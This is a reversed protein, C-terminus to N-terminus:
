DFRSSMNDQARQAAARRMAVKRAPTISPGPTPGGRDKKKGRPKVGMRGTGMSKAVLEFAPNRPKRPTGAVKDEKRREDLLEGNIQSDEVSFTNGRIAYGSPNPKHPQKAPPKKPSKVASPPPLTPAAPPKNYGTSGSSSLPKFQTQTTVQEIVEGDMEYHAVQTTKNTSKKASPFGKVGYPRIKLLNQQIAKQDKNVADSFGHVGQRQDGVVRRARDGIESEDIVEGEPDYSQRLQKMADETKKNREKLKGAVGKAKDFVAKGALATGAALGAKIGLGVMPNEDLQEGELDQSMKLGMARFKNKVLNAKTKMERTDEGEGKKETDECGCEEGLKKGGREATLKAAIAMKRREEKTRGKFQPADSKYFDKVVDGMDAKALDMKEEIENEESYNLPLKGQKQLQMTQRQMMLKKQLIKKKMEIQKQEEPSPLTSTKEEKEKELTRAQESVDPSVKVAKSKYNNVGEGTIKKAKAHTQEKEYIVEESRTSIAKGRVKRRNLLYKDTKDHDGDNDIDKDEQGVPDLGKGSKTKATSEGKSSESKSVEGYGTMEVSSINPNRRLEAIKSRSANRIYTNGTKKDTVRVKYKKEEMEDLQETEEVVEIGEVFVKYLASVLSDNALERADILDEGLLMQKARAKVAPAASSKGLQSMYAKRVAAPDLRAGSKASMAQKVKYRTDYALQRAQKEIQQKAGAVSSGTPKDM